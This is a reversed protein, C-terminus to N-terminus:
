VQDRALRCTGDVEGVGKNMMSWRKVERLVIDGYTCVVDHEAGTVASFARNTNASRQSCRTREM